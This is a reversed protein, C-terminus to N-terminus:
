KDRATAAGGHVLDVSVPPVHGDRARRLVSPQEIGAVLENLAKTSRRMVEGQDSELLPQDVRESAL